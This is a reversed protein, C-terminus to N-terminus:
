QQHLQRCRACCRLVDTQARKAVRNSAYDSADTTTLDETRENGHHGPRAVIDVDTSEGALRDPTANGTRNDSADDAQNFILHRSLHREFPLPGNTLRTRAWRVAPEPIAAAAQAQKLGSGM